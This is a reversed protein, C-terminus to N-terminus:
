IQPDLLVINFRRGILADAPCTVPILSLVTATSIFFGLYTDPTKILM